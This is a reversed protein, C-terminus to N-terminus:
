FGVTARLTVAADTPWRGASLELRVTGAEEPAVWEAGAMWRAPHRTTFAAQTDRAVAPVEFALEWDTSLTTWVARGGAYLEFRGLRLGVQLAADHRLWQATGEIPTGGFLGANDLGSYGLELDYSGRLWWSSDGLTLRGGLAIGGVVGDDGGTAAVRRPGGGAWLAANAEAEETLRITAAGIRGTAFWEVAEGGTAGIGVTLTAASWTFSSGADAASDDRAPVQIPSDEFSAVALAERAWRTSVGALLQAQPESAHAAAGSGLLITVICFTRVM